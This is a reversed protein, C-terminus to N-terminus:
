GKWEWTWFTCEWLRKFLLLILSTTLISLIIIKCRLLAIFLRIRCLIHHLIVPSAAPSIQFQDSKPTFPNVFKVSFILALNQTERRWTRVHVRLTSLLKSFQVQIRWKTCNGCLRNFDLHCVSSFRIEATDTQAPSYIRRPQRAGLPRPKVPNVQSLYSVMTYLRGNQLVPELVWGSSFVQLM